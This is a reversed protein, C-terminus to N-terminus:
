IISQCFIDNIRNDWITLHNQDCNRGYTCGISTVNIQSFDFAEPNDPILSLAGASCPSRSMCKALGTITSVNDLSCLGPNLNNLLSTVITCFNTLPDGIQFNVTNGTSGTIGSNPVLTQNIMLRQGELPQYPTGNSTTFVSTVNSSCQPARLCRCAVGRQCIGANNTSGDSKLAYPTLPNDCLFRSNCVEFAPDAILTGTDLNPCIKAGNYINTVCQGTPCILGIGSITSGNAVRTQITNNTNITRSTNYVIFLAFILIIVITIIILLIRYDM